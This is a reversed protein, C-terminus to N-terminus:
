PVGSKRRERFSVLTLLNSSRRAAYEDLTDYGYGDRSSSIKKRSGVSNKGSRNTTFNRGSAENRSIFHVKAISAASRILGQTEDLLAVCLASVRLYLHDPLRCFLRTRAAAAIKGCADIGSRGIVDSDRIVCFNDDCKSCDRM